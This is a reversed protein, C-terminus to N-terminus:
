DTLEEELAKASFFKSLQRPMTLSRGFSISDRKESEAFSHLVYSAMFYRWRACEKWARKNKQLVSMIASRPVFFVRAFGVFYYALRYEECFGDDVLVEDVDIPRDKLNRACHLRDAMGERSAVAMGQRFILLGRGLAPHSAFREASTFSMAVCQLALDAQEESSLYKTSLYPVTELLGQTLHLACIRKLEPSLIKLTPFAEDLTCTNSDTPAAVRSKLNQTIFRRVRCPTSKAYFNGASALEKSTFSRLMNNADNMENAFEKKDESITQVVEVLNGIIYAWFVGSVLMLANALGYEIATVPAINGYGISTISQISWFLCLWYRELSNEWGVPNLGGEEYNGAYWTGIWNKKTLLDEPEASGAEWLAIAGWICAIWHSIHIIEFTFKIAMAKQVDIREWIESIVESSKMIKRIRLLRLLKLAELVYYWKQRKDWYAKHDYNGDEDQFQSMAMWQIISQAPIAALFNILFWGSKIYKRRITALSYVIRENKDRYARFFGLVTDAIFFINLTVNFITYGFNSLSYYGASIGVSFPFSFSYYWISTIMLLDWAQIWPNSPFIVYQIGKLTPSVLPRNGDREATQAAAAGAGPEVDRSASSADPAGGGSAHLSSM